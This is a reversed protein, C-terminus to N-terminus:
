WDLLVCEVEKMEGLVQFGARAYIREAEPNSVQLFLPVTALHRLHAVVLTGLGRRRYAPHTSVEEVLACGAGEIMGAMAAPEGEVRALIFRATPSAVLPKLRRVMWDHGEWGNAAVTLRALSEVAELGAVELTVGEPPVAPPLPVPEWRMLRLEKPECQFGREVLRAVAGEPTSLDDLRVRPVLGRDLYFDVVEQIAAAPDDARLWRATNADWHEPNAKEHVLYGWPRAEVNAFRRTVSLGLEHFQHRLRPDM